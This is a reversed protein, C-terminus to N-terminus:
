YGWDTIDAGPYYHRVIETPSKGAQAQGRAGWQCLGAGHGFGQGTIAVRGSTLRMAFHPSLLKGNPLSQRLEIGSVSVKKRGNGVEFQAIVGAKPGATQRITTVDPPAKSGVAKKLGAQFEALTLETQWRYKDSDRCWECPVSRLVADADDFIERGTNTMGGCVASYYTCFLTGRATCVKGRTAAAARRSSDSEGALRRGRDDVYDVGLYKQSRVTAFVDYKATPDAQQMQWLAYTRAVIAQAERAATPFAAPMEADIVGSVYQELPVVNIATLAGSKQRDLQITGHYAHGEVVVLGSKTPVIELRSDSFSQRGLACGNPTGQVSVEALQDGRQLVRESGVARIVYPGRVALLLKNRPSPTLNVRIVPEAKRAPAKVAPTVASAIPPNRQIQLQPPRSVTAPPEIGIAYLGFLVAGCVATALGQALRQSRRDDKFPM